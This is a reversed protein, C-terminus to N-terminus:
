RGSKSLIHELLYKPIGLIARPTRMSIHLLCLKNRFRVKSFKPSIIIELIFFRGFVNRHVMNRCLRWRWQKAGVVGWRFRFWGTQVWEAKVFDSFDYILFFTLISTTTAPSTKFWRKCVNTFSFFYKPEDFDIHSLSFRSHTNEIM